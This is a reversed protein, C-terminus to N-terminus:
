LTRLIGQMFGDSRCSRIEDYLLPLHSKDSFVPCGSFFHFNNGGKVKNQDVFGISLVKEQTYFYSKQKPCYDIEAGMMKMVEIIEYVTSKCINLRSALDRASGTARRRILGDMRQIVEIKEIFRM